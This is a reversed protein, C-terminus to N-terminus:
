QVQNMDEELSFHHSHKTPKTAQSHQTTQNRLFSRFRHDVITFTTHKTSYELLVVTHMCHPLNSLDWSAYQLKKLFVTHGQITLFSYLAIEPESLPRDASMSFCYCGDLCATVLFFYISIDSNLIMPPAHIQFVCYTITYNGGM